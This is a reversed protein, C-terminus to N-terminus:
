LKIEDITMNLVSTQLELSIENAAKIIFDNKGSLLEIEKHPLVMILKFVDDTETRSISLVSMVQTERTKIIQLNILSKINEWEGRRIAFFGIYRKLRRKDTDIIIGSKIFLCLLSIVFILLGKWDLVAMRWISVGFLMVGLYIFNPPLNGTKYKLIM